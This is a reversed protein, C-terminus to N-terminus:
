SNNINVGLAVLDESVFAKRLTKVNQQIVFGGLEAARNVNNWYRDSYDVFDRYMPDGFPLTINRYADKLQKVAADKSYRVEDLLEASTYIGDGDVLKGNIFTNLLKYFNARNEKVKKIENESYNM